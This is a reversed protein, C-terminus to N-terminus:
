TEQRTRAKRLINKGLEHPYRQLKKVGDSLEHETCAACLFYKDLLYGTDRMIQANCLSCHLEVNGAIRWWERAQQQWYDQIAQLDASGIQELQYTEYILVAEQYGCLPCIGTQAFEQAGPTESKEAGPVDEVLPGFFLTNCYAPPFEWLCGACHFVAASLDMYQRSDRGFAEM